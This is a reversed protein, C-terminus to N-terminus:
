SIVCDKKVKKKKNNMDLKYYTVMEKLLLTFTEDINKRM